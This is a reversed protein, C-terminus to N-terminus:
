HNAITCDRLQQNRVQYFVHSVCRVDSTLLSTAFPICPSLPLLFRSSMPIPLISDPHSSSIPVLIFTPLFSQLFAITLCASVANGVWHVRATCGLSCHLCSNLDKVASIHLRLWMLPLLAGRLIPPEQLSRPSDQPSIYSSPALIAVGLLPKSCVSAEWYISASKCATM